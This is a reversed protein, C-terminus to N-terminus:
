LSKRFSNLEETTEPSKAQRLAAIRAMLTKFHQSSSFGRKVKTALSEQKKKEKMKSDLLQTM